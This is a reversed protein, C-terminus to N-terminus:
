ECQYTNNYVDYLPLLIVESRPDQHVHKNFVTLSQAEHKVYPTAEDTQPDKFGAQRHVQGYFLVNDAVLVGNDSLLDNEMIMDYYEIYGSKDADMFIFDFQPRLKDKSLELLSDAFCFATLVKSALASGMAVASAGTFGGIELTDSPRLIKVLQHLFQAQSISVMMHSKPFNRITDDAIKRYISDFTEPLSTSVETAYREEM